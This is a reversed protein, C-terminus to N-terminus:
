PVITKALQVCGPGKEPDTKVQGSGPIYGLFSITSIHLKM